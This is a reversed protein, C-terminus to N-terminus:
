VRTFLDYVAPFVFLAVLLVGVIVFVPILDKNIKFTVTKKKEIKQTEVYNYNINGPTKSQSNTKDNVFQQEGQSDEKNSTVNSATSNNVNTNNNLPPINGDNSNPVSNNPVVNQNMTARYPTVVEQEKEQNVQANESFTENFKKMIEEDNM